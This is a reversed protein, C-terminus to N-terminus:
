ILFLLLFTLSSHSIHQCHVCCYCQRGRVDAPIVTYTLEESRVHAALSDRPLSLSLSLSLISERIYARLRRQDSLSNCLSLRTCIKTELFAVENGGNSQRAVRSVARREIENGSLTCERAARQGNDM